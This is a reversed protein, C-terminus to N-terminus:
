PFSNCGVSGGTTGTVNALNGGTLTAASVTMPAANFCRVGVGGPGNGQLTNGDRVNIATLNSAQIGDGTASVVSATDRIRFTCGLQATVGHTTGGGPVTVATAGRLEIVGGEFCQVAAGTNNSITADSVQIAGGQFAFIGGTNPGTAGNGSITHTTTLGFDANGVLVQGNRGAFIGTETNNSVVNDGVLNGSGAFVGVGFRGNSSATTGGITAASGISVHIGERGNGSVTTPAYASSNNLIGIRANGGNHVTIGDLGNGTIAGFAITANGAEVAIGSASGNQVTVGAMLNNSGLGIQGSSGRGVFLNSSGSTEVLGGVVNGASSETIVIGTGGSGSVTVPKVTLTGASDQGVRVYASRTAVIGSAANDSVTSNTVVLSAAHAAVLGNGGNPGITCADVSVTSGYAAVVGNQSTESVTCNGLTLTSGRTASVGSTGGGITIGGAVVGDIRIHRAGDLQLAPLGPDLAQIVAPTVGDTRITVNDRNIVVNEVCTGKLVIDIVKATGNAKPGLKVNPKSCDVTIAEAVLPLACLAIVVAVAGRLRRLFLTLLTCSSM